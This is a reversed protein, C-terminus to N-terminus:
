HQLRATGMIIIPGNIMPVTYSSAPYDLYTSCGKVFFMTDSFYCVAEKRDDVKEKEEGENGREPM